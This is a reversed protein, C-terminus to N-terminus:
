GQEGHEFRAARAKTLRDIWAYFENIGLQGKARNCNWCCPVANELTYGISNDLRDIGTYWFGGNVGKNPKRELDPPSDCYFCNSSVIRFFDEKDISWKHGRSSASKKYSALLENRSAHGSPLKNKGGQSKRIERSLCGCSKTHGRKLERSRVVVSEGCKCKCGWFRWGVGDVGLCVEVYLRGFTEGSLDARKQMKNKPSLIKDPNKCRYGKYRTEIEKITM